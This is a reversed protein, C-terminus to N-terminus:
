LLFVQHRLVSKCFNDTYPFHWQKEPIVLRAAGGPAIVFASFRWSAGTNKERAFVDLFYM